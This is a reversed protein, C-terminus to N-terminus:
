KFVVLPTLAELLKPGIGKVADLAELNAYPRGAIIRKSLAPGVRPLTELQEATATNVNIKGEPLPKGHAVNAVVLSLLLSSAVLLAKSTAKRNM